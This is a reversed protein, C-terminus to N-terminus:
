CYINLTIISHSEVTDHILKDNIWLNYDINWDFKNMIVVAISNDPNKFATLELKDTYKSYEIKEAGVQIFKSFHGIYTFSLNKIYDSSDKNLMVPSNCFNNKHNPGGEHDLMINWDIFANTGSNLDGIIEHAYLEANPIEDYQKFGSYGTCGESHILLKDPYLNRFIRLNEFHDGSYYHYALGSIAEDSGEISFEEVARKVVREKNHDWILIKTDLNNEKLTPYLYNIAFDAEYKSDYLCSEWKQIANPENQITLYKINFGENKYATIYKVIYDAWTQRYKSRLKGGLTLIFTNKMFWPPSWPSALLELDPSKAIAERLLPIIYHKDREISFDSLSRKSAYSYSKISFDCSGIPLRALSYNLGDKSFYDNILCEKKEQPLKSFAYGAAETVAAGFGFIKQSTIEPYINIIQSEFRKPFRKTKLETQNFYLNKNFNTEYRIVKM